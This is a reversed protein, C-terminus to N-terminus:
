TESIRYKLKRVIIIMEWKGVQSQLGKKLLEDVQTNHSRNVHKITYDKRTKWLSEIINM